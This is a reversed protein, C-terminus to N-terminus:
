RLRAVGSIIGRSQSDVNYSWGAFRAYEKKRRLVM